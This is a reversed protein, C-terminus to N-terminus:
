RAAPSRVASFAAPVLALVLLTDAAIGLEPIEPIRGLPFCIAGAALVSAQVPSFLKAKWAMIALSLLAAPFLLGPVRLMAWASVEGQQETLREVGFLDVVAAELNFAVGASAGIVGIALLATAGGPMTPELRRSFGVFVIAFGIAGWMGTIARAEGNDAAWFLSSVVLLVPAIVTATTVLRNFPVSGQTTVTSEPYTATAANPREVSVTENTM